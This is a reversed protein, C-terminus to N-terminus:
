LFSFYIYINRKWGFTQYSVKRVRVGEGAGVVLSRM